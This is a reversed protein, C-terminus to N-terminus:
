KYMKAEKPQVNFTQTHVKSNITDVSSSVVIQNHFSTRWSISHAAGARSVGSCAHRLTPSMTLASVFLTFDAWTVFILWDFDLPQSTYVVIIKVSSLFHFCFNFFCGDTLFVVHTQFQEPVIKKRYPKTPSLNWITQFYKRNLVHSKMGQELISLTLPTTAKCFAVVNKLEEVM